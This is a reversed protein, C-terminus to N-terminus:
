SSRGSDEIMMGKLSKALWIATERPSVKDKGFPKLVVALEELRNQQLLEASLELLGELADARQRFSKVDLIERATTEDETVLSNLKIQESYNSNPVSTIPNRVDVEKIGSLDSVNSKLGKTESCESSKLIVPTSTNRLELEDRVVNILKGVNVNQVGMEVTEIVPQESGVRFSSHRIVHIVDDFAPPLHAAAPKETTPIPLIIGKDPQLNKQCLLTPSAGPPTTEAVASLLEMVTFKDDGSCASKFNAQFQSEPRIIPRSVTTDDKGNARTVTTDDRNSLWSVSTDNQYLSKEESSQVFFDLGANSSVKGEVSAITQPDLIVEPAEVSCTVFRHDRGDDERSMNEPMESHLTSTPLCVSRPSELSENCTVIEHVPYTPETMNIFPTTADDCLEIAQISVSSSVSNSSDAQMGKSAVVQPKQFDQLIERSDHPHRLNPIQHTSEPKKTMETPCVKTTNAVSNLVDIGAQRMRGPLSSRRVLNSPPTRQRSKVPLGDEVHKVPGYSPIGNHRPKSKPTSEIVPLKHKLPYSGQFPKASDLAVKAQSFILTDANCKLNPTVSSPEIVKPSAETNIRQILVCGTKTRNGRMPSGNEGVEKLAKMIRKITKPQKVEVNSGHEDCSSNIVGREDVKVFCVRPGNEEESPLPRDSEDEDDISVLDTDTYKNESSAVTAPTDRYSSLLSDKDSSSSNSNHSEAMSKRCDHAKSIPKEMSCTKLHSFSPRYQNVYPQLYPHKLIEPATPRHEPNKRLMGKILTKLSPSYCSPVPGISSRNIKSILGAMDFAKFAPRHAAMEYVCCGLSWIDSKFGYPIDALLEPCM